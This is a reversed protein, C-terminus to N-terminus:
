EFVWVADQAFESVITLEQVALHAYRQHKWKVEKSYSPFPLYLYLGFRNRDKYAEQFLQSLSVFTNALEAHAKPDIPARQIVEIRADSSAIFLAEIIDLRKKWFFFLLIQNLINQCKQRFPLWQSLKLITEQPSKFRLAEDFLVHARKEASHNNDIQTAITSAIADQWESEYWIHVLYWAVLAFFFASTLVGLLLTSGQTITAILFTVFLCLCCTAAISQIYVRKALLNHLLSHLPTPKINHELAEEERLQSFAIQM